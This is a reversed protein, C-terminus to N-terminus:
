HANHTPDGSARVFFSSSSSSSGVSSCYDYDDTPPSICLDFYDRQGDLCAARRLSPFFSALLLAARWCLPSFNHQQPALLATNHTSFYAPSFNNLNSVLWGVVVVVRGSLLFIYFLSRVWNPNRLLVVCFARFSVFKWPTM